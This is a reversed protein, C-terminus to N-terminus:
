IKIFRKVVVGRRTFLMVSYIGKELKKVDLSYANKAFLNTRLLLNGGITYLELQDLAEECFIHLRESVPNPFLSLEVEARGVAHSIGTGVEGEIVLSTYIRFGPIELQVRGDELRQGQLTIPTESDSDYLTYTTNRSVELPLTLILTGGTSPTILDNKLDIDTNLLDVYWRGATRDAHMIARIRGEKFGALEIERDLVEMSILSDMVEKLRELSSNGYQTHSNLHDVYFQMDRNNELFLVTGGVPANRTLEYLLATNNQAFAQETGQYRGAEQGSIVVAGGDEIFPVIVQAIKVSDIAEVGPLILVSISSLNETTLKFDPITRYPIHLRELATGWGFYGTLAPNKGGKAFGNPTLYLYETDTSYLIGVMGERVRQGFVPAMREITSNVKLASADDGPFMPQQEGLNLSVNGTLAEYGLLEGLHTQGLYQAYPGELYYWVSAVHSRTFSTTMGYFPTTHGYPPIGDCYGYTGRHYSPSYETSAMDVSTGKFAGYSLSPLDNGSVLIQEPVKGLAQATDKIGEFLRNMNRHGIAAKHTKYASWLPDDLWLENGWQSRTTHSTLNGPDGGPFYTLFKKKLAERVDYDVTMTEGEVPHAELYERFLAVSWEGFANELAITGVFDWGTYNDIWFGDVHQEEMFWAAARINREVWWPSAMDKRISIDDVLITSAGPDPPTYPVKGEPNSSISLASASINGNIDKCAMADYILANRPDSDDDNLYGLAVTGDPYGPLPMDAPIGKPKQWDPDNVWSAMGAWKVSNVHDNFGPGQSDWNWAFALMRSSGTNPDQEFSGDPLQHLGVIFERTEGMGELWAMIKVGNAQILPTNVKEYTIVHDRFFPARGEDQLGHVVTMASANTALVKQLSSTYYTFRPWNDWWSVEQGQVKLVTFIIFLSVLNRTLAKM